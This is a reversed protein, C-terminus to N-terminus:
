LLDVLKKIADIRIFNFLFKPNRKLTHTLNMFLFKRFVNKLEMESLNSVNIKFCEWSAIKAWEELTKPNNFLKKQICYNFLKTGPYPRFVDVEYQTANVRNALKITKRMDVHRETPIGIMFSAITFIELNNCIDFIKIIQKITIDKQLFKLLRESGSEIGFLIKGCGMNKMYSLINKNLQDIRCQLKWRLDFKELHKSIDIIRKKDVLFNDDNFYLGDIKYKSILFEIEELVKKCSKGRWKSLNFIQNYCFACRYPCGRSTNISIVRKRDIDRQFYKKVDILYWAPMPLSNLDIFNRIPNIKIKNNHKYAIGKIKNLKQRKKIYFLLERFSEEGEGMVIADCYWKKLTQVPLLTPHVGGFVVFAGNIKSFKAIDITDYIAPSTFCSIGVVDPNEVKIKRKVYRLSLINRDLIKVDYDELLSAVSILGLPPHSTSFTHLTKPNILFIKM